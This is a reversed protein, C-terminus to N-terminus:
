SEDSLTEDDAAPIDGWVDIMLAIAEEPSKARIIFDLNLAKVIKHQSGPRTVHQFKTSEEFMVNSTRGDEHQIHMFNAMGPIPTTIEM